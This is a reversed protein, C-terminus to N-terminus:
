LKFTKGTSAHLPEFNCGTSGLSLSCTYIVRPHMRTYVLDVSTGNQVVLPPTFSYLSRYKHRILSAYCCGKPVWTKEDGKLRLWSIESVRRLLRVGVLLRSGLGNWRTVFDDGRHVTLVRRQGYDHFRAPSCCTRVGFTRPYQTKAAEPRGYITM